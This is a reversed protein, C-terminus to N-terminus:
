RRSAGDAVATQEADAGGAQGIGIRENRVRRRRRVDDLRGHLDHRAVHVPGVLAQQRVFIGLAQVEVLAQQEVDGLRGAIVADVGARTEVGAQLIGELGVVAEMGARGEALAEVQRCCRTRRGPGPRSM